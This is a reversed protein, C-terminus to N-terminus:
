LFNALLCKFPRLPLKTSSRIFNSAPMNNLKDSIFAASSNCCLIIFGWTFMLLHFLAWQCLLETHHTVILKLQACMKVSYYLCLMYLRPVKWYRRTHKISTYKTGGALSFFKKIAIWKITFICRSRHKITLQM